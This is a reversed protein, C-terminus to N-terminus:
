PKKTDGPQTPASPPANAASAIQSEKASKDTEAKGTVADKFGRM